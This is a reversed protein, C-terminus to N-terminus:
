VTLGAQHTALGRPTLAYKAEDGSGQQQVHGKYLAKRLSTLASDRNIGAKSAVSVIAKTTVPAQKLLPYVVRAFTGRAVPAKRAPPTKVKARDETSLISLVKRYSDIQAYSDDIKTKIAAILDKTQM